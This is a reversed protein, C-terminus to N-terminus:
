KAPIGTIEITGCLDVRVEEPQGAIVEVSLTELAGVRDFLGSIFCIKLQGDRDVNIETVDSSRLTAFVPRFQKDAFTLKLTKSAGHTIASVVTKYDRVLREPDVSGAIEHFDAPATQACAGFAYKLRDDTRAVALAGGEADTLELAVSRSLCLGTALPKRDTMAVITWAHPGPRLQEVSWPATVGAARLYTDVTALPLVEPPAAKAAGAALLLGLAILRAASGAEQM